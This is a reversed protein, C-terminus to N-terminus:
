KARGGKAEFTKAKKKKYANSICTYFLIFEIEKNFYKRM